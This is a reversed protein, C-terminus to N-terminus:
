DNYMKLNNNKVMFNLPCFCYNDNHRMWSLPSDPLLTDELLGVNFGYNFDLRTM